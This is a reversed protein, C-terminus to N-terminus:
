TTLRTSTARMATSNSVVVVIGWPPVCCRHWTSSAAAGRAAVPPAKWWEGSAAGLAPLQRRETAESTASRSSFSHCHPLRPLQAPVLWAVLWSGVMSDTPILFLSLTIPWSQVLPQFTSTTAGQVGSLMVAEPPKQQSPFGEHKQTCGFVVVKATFLVHGGPNESIKWSKMKVKDELTHM